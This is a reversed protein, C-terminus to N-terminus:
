TEFRRVFVKVFSRTDVGGLRMYTNALKTVEAKAKEPLDTGNFLQNLRTAIAILFDEGELDRLVSLDVLLRSPLAVDLINSTRQDVAAHESQIRTQFDELVLYLVFVGPLHGEALRDLQHRLQIISSDLSNQRSEDHEDLVLMVGPFGLPPLLLLLSELWLRADRRGPLKQLHTFAVPFRRRLASISSCGIISEGSVVALLERWGPRLGYEGARIAEVLAGICDKLTPIPLTVSHLAARIQDRTMKTSIRAIISRLGPSAEEDGLYQAPVTLGSCFARYLALDDGHTQQAQTDIKAVLFGLDAACAKMAEGLHTKGSGSPASVIRLLSGGAGVYSELDHKWEQFISELGVLCRVALRPPPPQGAAFAALLRRRERPTLESGKPIAETM